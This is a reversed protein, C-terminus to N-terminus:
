PYEDTDSDMIKWGLDEYEMIYTAVIPNLSPMIMFRVVAYRGDGSIRKEWFQIYCKADIKTGSSVINVYDDLNDHDILRVRDLSVKGLEGLSESKAPKVQSFIKEHKTEMETYFYDFSEDDLIEKVVVVDSGTLNTIEINEKLLDSLVTDFITKHRKEDIKIHSEGEESTETECSLTNFCVTLILIKELIKRAKM